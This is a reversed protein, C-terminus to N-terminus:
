INNKETRNLKSGALWAINKHKNKKKKKTKLVMKAIGISILFVVSVIASAIGVPTGIVTTFSACSVASSAGSWVLLTKDACGLATIYTNLTKSRKKGGHSEAVFSRKKERIRSLIFKSSLM